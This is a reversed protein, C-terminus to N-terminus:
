PRPAATTLAAPRRRATSARSPSSSTGRSAATSPRSTTASRPPGTSRWRSPATSPRSSRRACRGASPSGCRATSRRPRSRASSTRSRSRATSRTPRSRPASAARTLGPRQVDPAAGRGDGPLLGRLRGPRPAAGFDLIGFLKHRNPNITEVRLEDGGQPGPDRDPAPDRGRQGGTATKTARVRLLAQGVRGGRGQRERERRFYPTVGEMSFAKEFVEEQGAPLAVRRGRCLLCFAALTKRM